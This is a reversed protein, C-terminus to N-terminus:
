YLKGASVGYIKSPPLGLTRELERIKITTNFGDLVPMHIDMLIISFEGKKEIFTRLATDGDPAIIPIQNIQKLLVTMALQSFSDDEAILIQPSQM